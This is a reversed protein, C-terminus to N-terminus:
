PKHIASALKGDGLLGTYHLLAQSGAAFQDLFAHVQALLAQWHAAYQHLHLVAQRLWRWLKEIPNLWHAYTPLWVLELQPFQAVVALVEEHQHISWNDQVVYIHKADPYAQVLNPYFQQLAKRGIIYNDLYNVQGSLANLVGVIRWQRNNDASPIRRPPAPAAWMWDQAPTPWRFFGMEDLFLLVTQDPDAATARLCDLVYQEKQAYAPDPSFQRPRGMRLEIGNRRLLRWVGSLSYRELWSFSAQITQLRWRSPQWGSSRAPEQETPAYQLRERLDAVQESDPYAGDYGAM